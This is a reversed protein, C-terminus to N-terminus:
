PPILPPLVQASVVKRLLLPLSNLPDILGDTHTHALTQKAVSNLLHVASLQVSWNVCMCVCVNICVSRKESVCVRAAMCVFLTVYVYVYVCVCVCVCVCVGLSLYVGTSVYAFTCLCASFHLNM